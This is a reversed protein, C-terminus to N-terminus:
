IMDGDKKMKELPPDLMEFYEGILPGPAKCSGIVSLTKAGNWFDCIETNFNGWKVWTYSRWLNQASRQTTAQFNNLWHLKLNSVLVMDFMITNTAALKSLKVKFAIATLASCLSEVFELIPHGLFWGRKIHILNLRESNFFFFSIGFYGRCQTSFYHNM